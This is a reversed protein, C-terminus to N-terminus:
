ISANLSITFRITERPDMSLFTEAHIIFRGECYLTRKSASLKQSTSIDTIWSMYAGAETYITELYPDSYSTIVGTAENVRIVVRLKVSAALRLGNVNQSFDRVDSREYPTSYRPTISPSGLTYEITKTVINTTDSSAIINDIMIGM